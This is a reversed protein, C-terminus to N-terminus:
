NLDKYVSLPKSDEESFPSRIISTGIDIAQEVIGDKIELARWRLL